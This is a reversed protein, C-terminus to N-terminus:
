FSPFSEVSLNLPISEVLPTLSGDAQLKFSLTETKPSTSKPIRYYLDVEKGPEADQSPKLQYRYRWPTSLDASDLLQLLHQVKARTPEPVEEVKGYKSEKGKEVVDISTVKNKGGEKQAHVTIALPGENRQLTIDDNTRKVTITIHAGKAAGLAGLARAATSRTLASPRADALRVNQITEQKGRRLVVIDFPTDSKIDAVQKILKEPENSVPQQNIKLLIDNVKIGAKKAVSNEFVETIVLGQDKPLNLQEALAAGPADARIGLRGQPQAGALTTRVRIKDGDQVLEGLLAGREISQIAKGDPSWVVVGPKPLAPPTVPVGAKPLAPPTAPVGPQAPVPPVGVIVGAKPKAPPVPQVPQAPKWTRIGEVRKMADKVREIADQVRKKTNADSDKLDALHKQLLEVVIKLDKDAPGQPAQVQQALQLARQYHEIARQHDAVDRQLEHQQKQTKAAKALERAQQELQVMRAQLEARARELEAQARQRGEENGLTKQLALAAEKAAADAQKKVDLQLDKLKAKDLIIERVGGGRPELEIILQRVKDLKDGKKSNEGAPQAMQTRLKNVMDQIRELQELIEKQNPPQAQAPGVGAALVALGLLVGAAGVTWLRPCSLEVRVPNQLLM